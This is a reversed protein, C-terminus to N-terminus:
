GRRRSQRSHRSAMPPPPSTTISTEVPLGTEVDESRDAGRRVHVFSTIEILCQSLPLEGPLARTWGFSWTLAADDVSTMRVAMWRGGLNMLARM